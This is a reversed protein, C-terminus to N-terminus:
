NYKKQHTKLFFNYLYAFLGTNIAGFVRPVLGNGVTLFLVFPKIMPVFWLNYLNLLNIGSVAMYIPLLSLNIAVLIALYPFMPYLYREHMNTLLIFSALSTLVLVWVAVKFDPKKWLKYLLPIFSFLFLIMGWLQYSLGLILQSHPQEKIDTLLAWLNFANATIVQLQNTLVKERYIMILWGFPEDPFSFPLTLIGLLVLPLVLSFLTQRASFKQKIFLVLFIPIFVVLSIKIYLCLAFSLVSLIPKKNFLFWFSLIAFFNIVSDTQGWVASNYWIVPNALFLIAGFKAYKEFKYKVLFRYIIYSIGLDSLIAPVKLLMRYLYKDMATIIGSPFAAVSTNIGWFFNFILEYLKRIFAFILITGPPQNPWTYAWVNSEPAYFKNVGYSFFKMGWDMHNGVDPHNFFSAILLRFVLAILFVHILKIKM